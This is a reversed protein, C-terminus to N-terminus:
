RRWMVEASLRTYDGPMGRLVCNQPTRAAPDASTPLCLGGTRAALSTPSLAAQSRELSTLNIRYSVEGGLVPSNIVNSYDIVPRVWPIQRQVDAGSFGLWYYTRADFYSRNGVGTLYLQSTAESPVTLFAG